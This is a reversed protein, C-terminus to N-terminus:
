STLLTRVLRVYTSVSERLERLAIREDPTHAVHISGPGFLLPTGWRSLLPIDTTFAVPATKYGPITHFKQPPIHSGYEIEAVGAAWAEIMKQIPEKDGVLRIMMEAEAEAPIINAEGGAKMVGVNITTAGLIPDAPLPLSQLKPLLELMPTLASKGLQPYASHAARGHTRVTVRLSGKAGSVLVSETPEGNILYKSTAPLQNALRAGDSGKEEGLVFLLDFREEKSAVLDDAAALMAAAIGKADCSGRGYLWDNDLRPGFYPPVTDLHTSLTVVGGGRTAWINSRGPTVEQLSVNWGRAILRRSVFDVVPGEDYSSSPIALLEAALAVVDIM